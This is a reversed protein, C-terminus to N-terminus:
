GAYALAKDLMASLHDAPARGRGLGNQQAAEQNNSPLDLEYSFSWYLKLQGTRNTVGAAAANKNNNLRPM